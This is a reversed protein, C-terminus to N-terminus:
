LFLVLCSCLWVKAAAAAAAEAAITEPDYIEGRQFMGGWQKDKVKQAASQDRLNKLYKSVQNQKTHYAHPLM